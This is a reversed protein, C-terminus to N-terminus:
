LRHYSWLLWRWNSVRRGDCHKNVWSQKRIGRQTRRKGRKGKPVGQVGQGGLYGHQYAGVAVARWDTRGSAAGIEALSAVRLAWLWIHEWESAELRSTHRQQSPHALWGKSRSPLREPLLTEPLRVPGPYPLLRPPERPRPAPLGQNPPQLPPDQCTLAALSIPLFLDCSPLDLPNELIIEDKFIIDNFWKAIPRYDQLKKLPYITHCSSCPQLCGLYYPTKYM